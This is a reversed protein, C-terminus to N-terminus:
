GAVGGVRWLGRPPLCGCGVGLGRRRGTCAATCPVGIVPVAEPGCIYDGPATKGGDAPLCDARASEQPEPVANPVNTAGIYVFDRIHVVVNQEEQFFDVVALRAALVAEVGAELLSVDGHHADADSQRDLAGLDAFERCRRQCERAVERGVAEGDAYSGAFHTGFGAPPVAAQVTVFAGLGARLAGLGAASM